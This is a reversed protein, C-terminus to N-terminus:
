RVGSVQHSVDGRPDRRMTWYAFGAEPMAAEVLVEFGHRRYFPVNRAKSTELYCPLGEADARAFVPALLASGIGRGQCPPDVGLIMLYWHPGPVDRDRCPGWTAVVHDFRRVAEAGMMAEAEMVGAERLQRASFVRAGPPTWVAVGDVGAPTVFAGGVQVGLRVGISFFAPLARARHAADPMAFTTMPDDFFARTLMACADPVQAETLPVPDLGGDM